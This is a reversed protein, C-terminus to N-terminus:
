RNLFDVVGKIMDKVIVFEFKEDFMFICIGWDDLGCWGVCGSM